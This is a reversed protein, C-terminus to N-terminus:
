EWNWDAPNMLVVGAVDEDVNSVKVPFKLVDVVFGGVQKQFYKEEVKRRVESLAAFAPLANKEQHSAPPPDEFLKVPMVEIGCRHMASKFAACTEGVADALPYLDKVGSFYHRLLMDARLLGHMWGKNFGASIGRKWLEDRNVDQLSRAFSELEEKINQLNLAQFVDLRTEERSAEELISIAAALRNRLQFYLPDEMGMWEQVADAPNEKSKLKEANFNLRHAIDLALSKGSDAQAKAQQAKSEFDDRERKLLDATSARQKADRCEQALSEVLDDLSGDADPVISLVTRKAKLGRTVLGNYDSHLATVLAEASNDYGQSFDALTRLISKQEQALRRATALVGEGDNRLHGMVEATQKLGESVENFKQKVKALIQDPTTLDGNNEGLYDDRLDKLEKFL